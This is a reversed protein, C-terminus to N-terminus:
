ARGSGAAKRARKAGSSAARYVSRRIRIAGGHIDPWRLGCLERRRAGTLLALAVLMGSQDSDEQARALLAQVEDSTPVRLSAQGLRPPQARESPNRDLWGWRVAQGPSASLM